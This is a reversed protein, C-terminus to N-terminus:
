WDPAYPAPLSRALHARTAEEFALPWDIGLKEALAKARPMFVRALALNTEIASDRSFSPLPISALLEMREPDLVRSLHLIGGPDPLNRELILLDTLMRRLMGTGTSAILEIENRGLGVTLLGLVRIFEAVLGLLRGADVPRPPLTAPLTGYTRDRDILPKYRDQTLNQTQDPALFHMDCRLWDESIAHLVPAFPLRQFHVIPMIAELVDRWEATFGEQQEQPVLALLDVDSFADATGRGFSGSLLLARVREDPQLAQAIRAILARQDM